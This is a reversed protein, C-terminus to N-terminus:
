AKRPPAPTATRWIQVPANAAAGGATSACKKPRFRLDLCLWVEQLWGQRDLNLRLMDPHMGHNAAAFAKAVDRVRPAKRSVNTLDPFRLGAFLRNSLGFYYDPNSGPMCTGHKAWEHQLLQASPTACYYKRLTARQLVGSRACWQPWDKGKGDPWLGHLVFGGSNAVGCKIDNGGAAGPRCRDAAWILSLTYGGIPVHRGPEATTAIEVRPRPLNGPIACQPVAAQAAGLGALWVSMAAILHKM